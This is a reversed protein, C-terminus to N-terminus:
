ASSRSFIYSGAERVQLYTLLNSPAAGHLCKYVPQLYCTRDKTGIYGYTPPKCLLEENTSAKCYLAVRLAQKNLQEFKDESRASCHYCIDSCYQFAPPMFADYLRQITQRCVLEKSGRHKPSIM